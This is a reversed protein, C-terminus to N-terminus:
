SDLIVEEYNPHLKEGELIKNEHRERLERKEKIKYYVYCVPGKKM